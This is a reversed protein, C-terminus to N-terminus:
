ATNPEGGGEEEVPRLAALRTTVNERYAAKRKASWQRFEPDLLGCVSDLSEGSNLYAQAVSLKSDEIEGEHPVPAPSWDDEPRDVYGLKNMLWTLINGALSNFEM